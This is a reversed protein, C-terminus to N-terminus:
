LFDKKKSQMFLAFGIAALAVAIEIALITYFTPSWVPTSGEIFPGIGDLKSVKFLFLQLLLNCCIMVGITWGMAESIMATALILCHCAYLECLVLIVFPLMGNPMSDRGLIVLMAGAVLMAWPLSFIVLNATIKAKAYQWPSVPLSMIFPLTQLKREQLTTEIILAVGMGIVATILLISGMYYGTNGGFKILALSLFGLLLGGAIIYRQFYWDKMILQRVITQNM